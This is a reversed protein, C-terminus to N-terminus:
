RFRWSGHGPLFPPYIGSCAGNHRSRSHPGHSSTCAPAFEDGPGGGPHQAHSRQHRPHRMHQGTGWRPTVGISRDPQCLGDTSRLSALFLGTFGLAPWCMAGHAHQRLQAQWRHGLLRQMQGRQGAQRHQWRQEQVRATRQKGPGGWRGSCRRGENGSQGRRSRISAGHVPNAKHM